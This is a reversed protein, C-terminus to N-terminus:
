ESSDSTFERMWEVLRQWDSTATPQSNKRLRRSSGARGRNAKKADEKSMRSAIGPPLAGGDYRARIWENEENTTLDIWPQPDDSM